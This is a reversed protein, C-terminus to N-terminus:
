VRQGAKGHRETLLNLGLLLGYGPLIEVGPKGELDNKGMGKDVAHMVQNDMVVTWASQNKGEVSLNGGVSIQQDDVILNVVNLMLKLVFQITRGGDVNIGNDCVVLLDIFYAALNFFDGAIQVTTKGNVIKAYYFTRGM